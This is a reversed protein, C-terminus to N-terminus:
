FDAMCPMVCVARWENESTQADLSILTGRRALIQATTENPQRRLERGGVKILLQHHQCLNEQAIIM